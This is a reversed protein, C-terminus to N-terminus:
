AEEGPGDEPYRPCVAGAHLLDGCRACPRFGGRVTEALAEPLPLLVTMRDLATRRRDEDTPSPTLVVMADVPFGDLASVVDDGSAVPVIGAVAYTVGNVAYEKGVHVAGDPGLDWVALETWTARDIASVRM